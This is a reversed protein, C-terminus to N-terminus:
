IHILSLEYATPIHGLSWNGDVNWKGDKAGTYTNEVIEPEGEAYRAVLTLPKSVTLNFSTEFLPVDCTDGSWSAFTEGVVEPAELTATTGPVLWIDESSVEDGAANVAKVTVRVFDEWQWVLRAGADCNPHTYTFSSGSGQVCVFGNTYVVYGRCETAVGEAANTWVAPASCPFSEGVTLGNTIGYSPSVEGFAIPSGEITLVDGSKAQISSFEKAYSEVVRALQLDTLQQSYYRYEYLKVGANGVLGSPTGGHVSGFQFNQSTFTPYHGM